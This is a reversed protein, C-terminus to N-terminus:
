GREERLAHRHKPRTRLCTEEPTWTWKGAVTSCDPAYTSLTTFFPCSRSCHWFQHSRAALATRHELLLDLVVM